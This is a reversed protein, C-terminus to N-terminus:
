AGQKRHRSAAAVAENVVKSEERLRQRKEFMRLIIRRVAIM